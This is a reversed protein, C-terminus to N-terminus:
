WSVKWSYVHIERRLYAKHSFEQKWVRNCGMALHIGIWDKMTEDIMFESIKRKKRSLIKQPKYKQIWKWISVHNRKVIYLSFLYHKPSRELQYALFTCICVMVLTSQLPETELIWLFLYSTKLSYEKRLNVSSILLYALLHFVNLFYVLVPLICFLLWKSLFYGALNTPACFLNPIHYSLFTLYLVVM